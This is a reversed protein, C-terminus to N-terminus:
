DNYYDYRFGNRMHFEEEYVWDFTGNIINDNGDFTLQKIVHTNLDEVYINHEYVYGVKNNCPSFTAFMLNRPNLLSKGLQYLNSTNSSINSSINSTIDSTTLDLIWYSGKTNLRWVKISNTFILVKKLDNSLIYDEIIIPKPQGPIYLQTINVLVEVNSENNDSSTNNNTHSNSTNLHHLYIEKGLSTNKLTTYNSNNICWRPRDFGEDLYDSSSFISQVSLMEKKEKNKPPSFCM